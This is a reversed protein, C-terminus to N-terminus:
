STGVVRTGWRTCVRSKACRATIPRRPSTLESSHSRLVGGRSLHATREVGDSSDLCGPRPLTIPPCLSARNV